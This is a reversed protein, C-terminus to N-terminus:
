ELPARSPRRCTCPPRDRCPSRRPARAPFARRCTPRSPPPASLWGAGAAATATAAAAATATATALPFGRIAVAADTGSVPVPASREGARRRCLARLVRRGTRQPVGEPAGRRIAGQRNRWTGRARAGLGDHPARRPPLAARARVGVHSRGSAGGGDRRRLRCP